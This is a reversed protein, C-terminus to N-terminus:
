GQPDDQAQMRVKVPSNSATRGVVSTGEGGELAELEHVAERTRVSADEDRQVLAHVFCVDGRCWCIYILSFTYVHLHVVLGDPRM